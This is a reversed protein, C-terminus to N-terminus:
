PTAFNYPKRQPGFKERIRKQAGQVCGADPSSEVGSFWSKVTSSVEPVAFWVVVGVGVVGVGVIAIVVGNRGAPDNMNVPDNKVYAHLNAQGGEFLVPDQATWRGIEPDYDRAGFRVLGTDRDHLGGAFGFPQFGPNTDLLVKGFSDYDIRQAVAGTVANVILRVSGLHDSIIRYTVGGKIMYDPVNARSGYIFRSVVNGSGDLEAIPTIHSPDYLFGQVLSGNISKGIRRNGDILYDIRTRDPLLVSKLNGQADYAYTTVKGTTTDTRTELQGEATYTFSENGDTLLRDQADYTASVTGGPGSQTLRNGNSDYTYASTVAGDEKVQDLRGAADYHYEFTHTTGEVTEVRQSIRGLNDYTYSTGFLASGNATATYQDLEGLNNYGLTDAVVGLTTGTLRGNQADRSLVLAGAQNLLDDQDYKYAISNGDVSESTIDFANNYTLGINGALPGTRDISTLLSGDYGYNLTIGGPASISALNGTTQNYTLTRTGSSDTITALRGARDYGYVTSTGDPLDVEELRNENDYLYQTHDQETGVVPPTYSAVLDGPTYTFTHSPQGPPTVSTVNGDADYGFGVTSNGPQIESLLQGDADYSFQTTQGSPDTVTALNGQPDYGFTTTSAGQSITALRGRADYSYAIAAVGAAQTSTVRGESDLTTITMRGEPSTSTITRASANYLSTYTQGDQVITNTETTLKLWNNPDSLTVTRTMTLTSTLGAPTTVTLSKTIPALMGFRPDPGLTLATVTGDPATTTQTGDTGYVTVTTGVPNGCSCYNTTTWREGGTPLYQVQYTSSLGSATTTKVTYGNADDTRELTTFNGDPGEDRALRGLSDYSFNHVGGGPDTRQTLLGDATSTFQVAQGAPSTVKALYGNADVALTTRQGFPAVIATPNGDADREVTTINGDADKIQTLRGAADYSFQYLVAGTLADLTRLHRGTSDFHYLEQGDESPILFDGVSVGPAPPIVRRIRGFFSDEAIYLSGDPGVAIGQPQNLQAQTALGGDGVGDAPHGGGAVTTIIEDPGVWRILDNSTQAIYLSGDPGVAVAEPRFLFAQTAPGGDGLGAATPGGGAVTTIIGDPGVRRIRNNDYDAIYLSGDPGVAVDIPGALKAQTAPGGDGVGDAPHGGGAVTTIIGDPGV